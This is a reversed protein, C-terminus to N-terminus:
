QEQIRGGKLGLFFVVQFMEIMEKQKYERLLNLTETDTTYSKGNLEFTKM